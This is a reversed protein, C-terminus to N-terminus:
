LQAKWDITFTGAAIDANTTTNKIRVTINTGDVSQVDVANSHDGRIGVIVCNPTGKLGHAITGNGNADPSISASGYNDGGKVGIFQNGTGSNSVAGTIEGGIIRNNNATADFEIDYTVANSLYGIYATNDSAGTRFYINKDAGDASVHLESKDAFMHVGISPIIKTGNPDYDLQINANWRTGRLTLGTNGDGPNSIKLNMSNYDIVGNVITMEVANQDPNWSKIDFSSNKIYGAGLIASGITFSSAKQSGYDSLSINLNYFNGAVIALSDAKCNYTVVNPM